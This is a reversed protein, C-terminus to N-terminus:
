RKDAYPSESMCHSRREGAPAAAPVRLPHKIEAALLVTCVAALPQKTRKPLEVALLESESFSFGGKQLSEWGM